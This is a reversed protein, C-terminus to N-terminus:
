TDQDTIVVCQDSGSQAPQQFGKFTDPDHGLRGVGIFGEGTSQLVGGINYYKIKRHRAAAAELRKILQTM